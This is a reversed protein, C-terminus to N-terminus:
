PVDVRTTAELRGSWMHQERSTDYVVKADYSGSALPTGGNVPRKAWIGLDITETVTAGAALERVILESEDRDEMFELKRSTGSRDTLTVTVWDYHNEGVFVHTALHILASGTNRWSLELHVGRAHVAFAIGGAAPRSADATSRGAESTPKGETM